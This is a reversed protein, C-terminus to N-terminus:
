QRQNLDIYGVPCMVNGAAMPPPVCFSNRGGAVKLPPYGHASDAEDFFGIELRYPSQVYAEPLEFRMLRIDGPQWKCLPPDISQDWAHWVGDAGFAHVM